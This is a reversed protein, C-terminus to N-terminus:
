RGVVDEVGLQRGEGGGAVGDEVRPGAGARDCSAGDAVPHAGDGGVGAREALQRRDGEEVRGVRGHEVRREGLQGARSADVHREALM